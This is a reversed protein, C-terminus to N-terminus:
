GDGHNVPWKGQKYNNSFLPYNPLVILFFNFNASPWAFAVSLLSYKEFIWKGMPELLMYVLTTQLHMIIVVYFNFKKIFLM